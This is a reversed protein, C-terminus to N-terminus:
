EDCPCYYSVSPCVSFSVIYVTICLSVVYLTGVSILARCSELQEGAIIIILPDPLIKELPPCILPRPVFTGWHPGLSPTSTHDLPSARFAWLLNYFYHMFLEDISRKAIVVSARFCKVVNGSPPSTDGRAWAQPRGHHHHHHYRIVLDTLTCPVHDVQTIIRHLVNVLVFHFMTPSGPNLCVKLLDNNHPTIRFCSVFCDVM